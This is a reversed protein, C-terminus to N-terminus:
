QPELNTYEPISSVVGESGQIQVPSRVRPEVNHDEDERLQVVLYEIMTPELLVPVTASQVIYNTAILYAFREFLRAQASIPVRWCALSLKM